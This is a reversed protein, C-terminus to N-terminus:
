RRLEVGRQFALRNEIERTACVLKYRIGTALDEKVVESPRDARATPPGVIANHEIISDKFADAM